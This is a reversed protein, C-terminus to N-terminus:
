KKENKQACKNGNNWQYLTRALMDLYVAMTTNEPSQAGVVDVVFTCPLLSETVIRQYHCFPQSSIVLVTGKKPQTKLWDEVTDATTPRVMVGDLSKKQPSDILVVKDSFTLSEEFLRKLAGAETEPLNTWGRKELFEREGQVLYRCGSLLAIDHYSALHSVVEKLKEMRSNMSFVTARMFLIHDYSSKTLEMANVLGMRVFVPLLQDRKKEYPHEQIEWREQHAPRLWGKQTVAVLDSITGDYTLGTIKLVEEIDSKVFGAITPTKTKTKFFVLFVCALAAVFAVLRLRTKM